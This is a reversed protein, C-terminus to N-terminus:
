LFFRRFWFSFRHLKEDFNLSRLWRKTQFHKKILFAILVTFPNNADYYIHYEYWYNTDSWRKKYDFYGKSFDFTELGNYMCWEILKLISISGPSYKGYNIDFAPIANYLTTGSCYSFTIAIPKEKDYMVFLIAKKENILSYAVDTYFDWEKSKLNNNTIGKKKYREVLLSRFKDFLFDYEEKSISGFFTKYSISFEQELQRYSRRLNYKSKSKFTQDIYDNLDKYSDLKILFGQYQPIRFQRIGANEETKPAYNHNPVDYILCVKGKLESLESHNLKYVVGKTFNKGINLHLPFFLAKYFSIGLFSNFQFGKQGKNFHKSWITVFSSSIFPNEAPSM